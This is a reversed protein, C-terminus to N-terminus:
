RIFLLLLFCLTITCYIIKISIQQINLCHFLIDENVCNVLVVLRFCITCHTVQFVCVYVYPEYLTQPNEAHRDLRTQVLQSHKEEEQQDGHHDEARGGVVGLRALGLALECGNRAGEPPGDDGHRRDAVAVDGGDPNPSFEDSCQADDGAHQGNRQRHGNDYRIEIIEIPVLTASSIDAGSCFRTYLSSNSM